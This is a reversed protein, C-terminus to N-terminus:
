KMHSPWHKMLPYASIILTSICNTTVIKLVWYLRECYNLSLPWTLHWWTILNCSSHRSWPICCDGAAVQGRRMLFCFILPFCSVISIYYCTGLIWRAEARCDPAKKNTLSVLIFSLLQMSSPPSTFTIFSTYIPFSSHSAQSPTPCVVISECM